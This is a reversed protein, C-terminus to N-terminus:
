LYDKHFPFSLISSMTYHPSISLRFPVSSSRCVVQDTTTAKGRKRANPSFTRGIMGRRRKLFFFFINNTPILERVSIGSKIGPDTWLPVVLQSSQPQINGSLDRILQNRIREWVAQIAAYDAWESETPDLTCEHKPTVQWRCKQCFSRPKKRAVATVRSHFTCRFLTLM